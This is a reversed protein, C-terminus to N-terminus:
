RRKKQVLTWGDDDSDEPAYSTTKIQSKMISSTIGGACPVSDVCTPEDACLVDPSKEESYGSFGDMTAQQASSIPCWAKASTRLVSCNSVESTQNGTNADPRWAKASASLATQSRNPGTSAQNVINADPCWEKAAVRLDSRNSLSAGSSMSQNSTSLPHSFISQRAVCSTDVTEVQASSLCADLLAAKGLQDLKSWQTYVVREVVYGLKELLRQKQVSRVDLRGKKDYHHPGDVEIVLNKEPILIDVVMCGAFGLGKEEEIILDPCLAQLAKCVSAQLQSSHVDQKLDMGQFDQSYDKGQFAQLWTLAQAIQYKQKNSFDDQQHKQQAGTVLQDVIASDYSRGLETQAGGDQMRVYALLSNAINQANFKEANLDVAAWLKEGLDRPLDDWRVGM